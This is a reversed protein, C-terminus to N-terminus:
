HPTNRIPSNPDVVIVTYRINIILHISGEDDTLELINYYEIGETIKPITINTVIEIRSSQIRYKKDGTHIVIRIYSLVLIQIGLYPPTVWTSTIYLLWVPTM